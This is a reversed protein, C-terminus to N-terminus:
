TQEPFTLCEHWADDCRGSAIGTWLRPLSARWSQRRTEGECKQRAACAQRCVLALLAKGSRDAPQSGEARVAHCFIKLLFVGKKIAEKRGDMGCEPAALRSNPFEGKGVEGAAGFSPLWLREPKAAAERLEPEARLEAAQGQGEPLGRERIGADELELQVANGYARCSAGPRGRMCVPLSAHGGQGRWAPRRRGLSRGRRGPRMGFPRLSGKEGPPQLMGETGHARDM